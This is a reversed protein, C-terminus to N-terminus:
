VICQTDAVNKDIWLHAPSQRFAISILRHSMATTVGPVLLLVYWVTRHCSPPLLREVAKQKAILQLIMTSLSRSLLPRQTPLCITTM